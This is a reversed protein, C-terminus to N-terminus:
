QNKFRDFLGGFILGALGLIFLIIGPVGTELLLVGVITFLAGLKLLLGKSPM